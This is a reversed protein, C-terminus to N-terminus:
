DFQSMKEMREEVEQRYEEIKSSLFSSQVVHYVFQDDEFTTENNKMYDFYGIAYNGVNGTSITLFLPPVKM